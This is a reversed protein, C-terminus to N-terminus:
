DTSSRRPSQQERVTIRVSATAARKDTGATLSIVHEGPSLRAFVGRGEGLPGDRDSAWQLAWLEPQREELYWGNGLLSVEAAVTGGDIPQQIIAQCAKVSVSFAPSVAESSRVGNTARVRIRCREGGPLQEVDV